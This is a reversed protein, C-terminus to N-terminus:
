LQLEDFLFEDEFEDGADFSASRALDTMSDEDYGMSKIDLTSACLIDADKSYIIVTEPKTYAKKTMRNFDIIKNMEQGGM